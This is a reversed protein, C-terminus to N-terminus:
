KSKYCLEYEGPDNLFKVIQSIEDLRVKGHAMWFGGGPNISSMSTERYRQNIWMLSLEGTQKHMIKFIVGKRGAPDEFQVISHGEPIHSLNFRMYEEFTAEDISIVPITKCFEVGGLAKVIQQRISTNCEISQLLQDWVKHLNDYHDFVKQARGIIKESYESCEAALLKREEENEESAYKKRLEQFNKTLEPYKPFYKGCIDVIEDNEVLADALQSRKDDIGFSKM